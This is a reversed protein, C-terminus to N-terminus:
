FYGTQRISNTAILWHQSSWQSHSGVTGPECYVYIASAAHRKGNPPNTVLIQKLVLHVIMVCEDVGRGTSRQMCELDKELHFWFFEALNQPCVIGKTVRAIDVLQHENHCAAWLFSSHMLVRVICVATASLDREREPQTPRQAAIGLDHGTM